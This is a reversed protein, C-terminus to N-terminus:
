FWGSSSVQGFRDAALLVTQLQKELRALRHGFAALQDAFSDTFETETGHGDPENAQDCRMATANNHLLTTLIILTFILVTESCFMIEIFTDAHAQALISREPSNLPQTPYTQKLYLAENITESYRM